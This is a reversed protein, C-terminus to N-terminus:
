TAPLEPAKPMPPMNKKRGHDRKWELEATKWQDMADVYCKGGIVAPPEETPLLVCVRFVAEAVLRRVEDEPEGFERWMRALEGALTPSTDRSPELNHLPTANPLQDATSLADANPLPSASSLSPNNEALAKSNRLAAAARRRYDRQREANSKAM